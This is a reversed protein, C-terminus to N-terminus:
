VGSSADGVSSSFSARAARKLCSFPVLELKLHFTAEGLDATSSSSSPLSTSSSRASSSPSSCPIISGSSGFSICFNSSWARLSNGASVGLVGPGLSGPGERVDLSPFGM